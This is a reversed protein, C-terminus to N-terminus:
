NWTIAMSRPVHASCPKTCRSAAASRFPVWPIPPSRRIWIACGRWVRRRAALAARRSATPNSRARPKSFRKTSKAWPTSQTTPRNTIISRTTALRRPTFITWSTATSIGLRPHFARDATQLLGASGAARPLADGSQAGHAGTKRKPGSDALGSAAEGGRSSRYKRGGYGNHGDEVALPLWWLQVKIGQTTSSADGHRPHRRRCFGAARPQWDGYNNFWGDDLTAWHIGLEKLKPITDLMQKPTVAFEYGWGCWSVAYNEDNNAPKRLGEKEMSTPGCSLPEYYDGSYVTLFTRPTSFVEGPKLSPTPPSACVSADVQGQGPRRCRFLSSSRCRKSTALPKVWM